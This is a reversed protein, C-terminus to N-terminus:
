VGKKQGFTGCLAGVVMRQEAQNAVQASYPATSVGCSSKWSLSGVPNCQRHLVRTEEDGARVTGPFRDAVVVAHTLDLGRTPEPNERQVSRDLFKGVRGSSGWSSPEVKVFVVSPSFSEKPILSRERLVQHPSRPTGLGDQRLMRWPSKGNECLRAVPQETGRRSAFRHVEPDPRVTRGFGTRGRAARDIQACRKGIGELHQYRLPRPGVGGPRRSPWRKLEDGKHDIWNEATVM